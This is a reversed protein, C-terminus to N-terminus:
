ATRRWASVQTYPPMNNHATGSGTAETAINGNYSTADNNYRIKNSATASGTATSAVAINHTHSPLNAVTLAVTKAGGTIGVDGDGDIAWLFTNELRVWTTGPYMTNPDAHDYRQIITGVPLLCDIISQLVAPTARYYPTPVTAVLSGPFTVKVRQDMTNTTYWDVLTINDWQSGKQIYLNWTLENVKCAFAGYNSGEYTISALSSATATSNSLRLHVTMPTGAQRRNFVFTLPVDANAATIVIQAMLVFGSVGAEGPSSVAYRGGEQITTGYFHNKLAVELTGSEEAVKGISMCTGDEGWNMLTFATPATTARSGSGIDDTAVVEVDYSSNSDAAFIHAQNTVTYTGALATFTQSTWSTATSKKYRLVYAAGNKNNLPSIKASFVARIYEGRDNETGDADCRTVTLATVSPAAYDIFTVSKTAASSTRGRRDKVTASISVAGVKHLVGTTFSAASYKAGDVTTNYAYIPSSYSQTGTVTVSLKSLGKVPNGYTSQYGTADTVTVACSPKVSAPVNLTRSVIAKGIHVGGSYTDVFIRATYSTANPLQSCISLAPTFTCSTAVNDGVKLHQGNPTEYYVDHVFSSSARTINVTIASGITNGTASAISSARPITDLTGSGSGSKTGISSGAFTIGFEQSFSYSFTKSGDANHAILTSGSALTKTSNNSIGVTNTGSYSKGNVTVAWAKSATSAIYGDSGAILELKWSVTTSNGSISQGAEWWSFKLTDWSTVAVQTYGSTAM